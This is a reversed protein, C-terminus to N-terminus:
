YFDDEPDEIYVLEYEESDAFITLLPNLSVDSLLYYKGRQQVM